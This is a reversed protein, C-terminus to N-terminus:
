AVPSVDQNTRDALPERRWLQVVDNLNVRYDFLSNEDSMVKGQFILRQFEEDVSWKEKLKKKLETVSM